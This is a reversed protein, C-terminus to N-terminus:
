VDNESTLAEVPISAALGMARDRRMKVGLGGSNDAVFEVGARELTAHMADITARIPSSRENEFNSVTLISVSAERALDDQNWHLLGRAARSQSPTM